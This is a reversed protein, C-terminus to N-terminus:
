ADHEPPTRVVVRVIHGGRGGSQHHHLDARVTFAGLRRLTLGTSPCTGCMSSVHYSRTSRRQASKSSVEVNAPTLLNGRRVLLSQTISYSDGGSATRSSARLIDQCLLRAM